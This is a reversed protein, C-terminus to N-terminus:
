NAETLPSTNNIAENENEKFPSANLTIVKQDCLLPDTKWCKKKKQECNSINIVSDLCTQIPCVMTSM